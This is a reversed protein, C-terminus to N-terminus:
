GVGCVRRVRARASSPEARSPEAWEDRTSHLYVGEGEGERALGASQDWGGSHDASVAAAAPPFRADAVVLLAFKVFQTPLRSQM